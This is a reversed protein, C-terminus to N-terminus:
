SKFLSRKVTDPPIKGSKSRIRKKRESYFEKTLGTVVPSLMLLAAAALIRILMIRQKKSM